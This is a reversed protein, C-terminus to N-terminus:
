SSAKGEKTNEITMQMTTDEQLRKSKEQQM